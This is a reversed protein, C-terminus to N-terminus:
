VHKLQSVVGIIMGVMGVAFFLALVPNALITSLVTGSLDLVSTIATTLGEM